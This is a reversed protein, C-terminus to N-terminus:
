FHISPETPVIVINLDDRDANRVNGIRIVKRIPVDGVPFFQKRQHALKLRGYQM